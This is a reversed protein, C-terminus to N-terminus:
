LGEYVYATKTTANLNLWGSQKQLARFFRNTGHVVQRPFRELKKKEDLEKKLVDYDFSFEAVLPLEDKEGLLYWFSLSAKVLHEEHDIPTKGFELKGMWLAVEHAMFGNVTKLPTNKALGLAELGPFLAALEDVSDLKPPKKQEIATSHSFKSVFPPLIDEEFKTKNKKSSSVDRVASIYRDSERYKLTIKFPKEKDEEKRVRVVFGRRRLAFEATDVYWTRRVHEQEQKKVKGGQEKALFEVLHWFAKSGAERDKFRDANLMLKYERSTVPRNSRKM